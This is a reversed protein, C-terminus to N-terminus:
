SFAYHGVQGAVLEAAGGNRDVRRLSAIPGHAELFYFLEGDVLYNYPESVGSVVTAPSTLTCSAVTEENALASEIASFQNEGGQANCASISLLSLTWCWSNTM